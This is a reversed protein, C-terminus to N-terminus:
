GVTNGGQIDSNAQQETSIAGAESKNIDDPKLQEISDIIKFKFVDQITLPNNQQGGLDVAQRPKGEERDMLDRIADIDGALAKGIERTLIAHRFTKEDGVGLEYTVSKFNGDKDPVTLSLSIKSAALLENRIDAWANHKKPRGDPNGSIGPKWNPNGPPNSEIQKEIRENM